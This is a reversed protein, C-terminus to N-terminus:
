FHRKDIRSVRIIPKFRKYGTHPSSKKGIHVVECM